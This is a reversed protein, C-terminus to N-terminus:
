PLHDFIITVVRDSTNEITYDEPTPPSDGASKRLIFKAATLISTSTPDCRLIAGMEIAEQREISTRPTIAQFGLISSEESISGSDSITVISNKQLHCWDFFGVPKTFIISEDYENENQLFNKLRPHVSLIVPVNFEASLLSLGYILENRTEPNDINEQRHFSAAIFLESNLDYTKLIESDNIENQYLRLVERM